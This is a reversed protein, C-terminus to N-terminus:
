AEIETPNHEAREAEAPSQEKPRRFYAEHQDCLRQYKRVLEEPFKRPAEGHLLALRTTVEVQQHLRSAILRFYNLNPGNRAFKGSYLRAYLEKLVRLKKEKNLYGDKSPSRPPVELLRNQM